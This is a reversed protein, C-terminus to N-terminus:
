INLFGNLSNSLERAENKSILSAIMNKLEVCSQAGQEFHERRLLTLCQDAMDTLDDYGLSGATGKIM